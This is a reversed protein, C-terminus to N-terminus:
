NAYGTVYQNAGQKYSSPYVIYQVTSNYNNLEFWNDCFQDTSVKTASDLKAGNDKGARLRDDYIQGWAYFNSHGGNNFTQCHFTIGNDKGDVLGSVAKEVGLVPYKLEDIKLEWNSRNGMLNYFSNPAFASVMATMTSVTMAVVVAIIALTKYFKKLM